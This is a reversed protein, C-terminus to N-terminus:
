QSGAAAMQAAAPEDKIEPLQYQSRIVELERYFTEDPGHKIQKLHQHTDFADEHVQTVCVGINSCHDAVRELSTTVDSLIFGMEITCEGARLRQIHRYKLEKSLEDIVEELPEIERALQVDQNEYVKYAIDVIDEVAHEMVRLEELAKDSFKLGKEYLEQASEMINVGHDSIREFDGICHLMISVSHSDHVSLDKQNLKVLYTGLEDEYRDVKKEAEEVLVKGEASFNKLLDLATFLTRHSDEAMKKAANRSQEVAFAPKELFRSELIMFDPDAAVKEQEEKRDRITLCALKELAKGFPLLVLTATINFTSHLIAIGAPTAAQTMFSFHVAANIAYFVAMFLMTVILNFYLHVMAARKANKSAGIASLIATICTGINQGMIIPLAASFPVMGTLCLAQLIGVSASSSQIIATVGAGVLVGLVPNSIAAFLDAFQPLDALPAVAGEMVSMGIFLIGFGTFIDAIDRTRRKKAIMMIIVGVLVIIYALNKPKLLDMFLSGSGEGGSLRLIQATITTGINAGLIVGVSQKLTMIGANVFGVVMVTTASSSQIVMTVVMGMLLATVVNGTMKELTKELKSGAARELGKGMTTMGYIFLALGGIMQVISLVDFDM